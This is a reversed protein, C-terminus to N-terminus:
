EREPEVVVCRLLRRRVVRGHALRHRPEVDRVLDAPAEGVHLIELQRAHQVAADDPRRANARRKDRIVFGRDIVNGADDLHDPDVIEEADDSLAFPAGDPRCLLQRDGPRFPLAQGFLCLKPLMNAAGPDDPVVDGAAGPSRRRREVRRRALKGRGIIEGNM